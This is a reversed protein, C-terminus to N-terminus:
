SELLKSYQTATKLYGLRMMLKPLRNAEKITINIEIPALKKLEAEVFAVFRAAVFGKRAEELLFLTDETAVKNNTHMSDTVYMGINGVLKGADNRATFLRYFGISNFYVYREYNPAFELGHRYGETEMWHALHLPMLEELVDQYNEEAFIM